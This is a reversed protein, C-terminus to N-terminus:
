QKKHPPIPDEYDLTSEASNGESQGGNDDAMWLMAGGVALPILGGLLWPGILPNGSQFGITGLGCTMALGIATVMIGVRRGRSNRRNSRAQYYPHILGQQALEMVEKHRMWRRFANFGLITGFFLTASAGIALIILFDEM